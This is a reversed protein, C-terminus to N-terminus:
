SPESEDLLKKIRNLEDLIEDLYKTYEKDTMSKVSERNQAYYDLLWLYLAYDRELNEREERTM